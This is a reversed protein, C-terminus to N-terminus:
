KEVEGRKQLIEERFLFSLDTTIKHNSLNLMTKFIVTKQPKPITKANLLELLLSNLKEFSVMKPVSDSLLVMNLAGFVQMYSNSLINLVEEITSREIEGWFDHTTGLPRKNMLDILIKAEEAPIYLISAGPVDGVLGCVLIVADKGVRAKISEIEKFFDVIRVEFSHVDAKDGMITTLARAAADAGKNSITQFEKIEAEEIQAPIFKKGQLVGEIREAIKEKIFFPKVFYGKAGMNLAQRIVGEQGIASIVIVKAGLPILEELTKLGDVKSMILDLLVIDPNESKFKTIAEDGDEAEIVELYGSKNLIDILIKRMFASDDTILIKAM